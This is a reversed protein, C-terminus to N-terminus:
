GPVGLPDLFPVYGVGSLGRELRQGRGVMVVRSFKETIVRKNM